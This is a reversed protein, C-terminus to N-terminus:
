GTSASTVVNSSCYRLALRAQISPHGPELSSAGIGWATRSRMTSAEPSSITRMKPSFDHARSLPTHGDNEGHAHDRQSRHCGRRYHDRLTGPRACGFEGGSMRLRLCHYLGTRIPSARHQAVIAPQAVDIMEAFRPRQPQRRHRDFAAFEVTMDLVLLAKEIEIIQHPTSFDVERLKRM